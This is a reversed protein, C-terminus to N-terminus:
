FSPSFFDFRLLVLQSQAARQKFPVQSPFTENVSCAVCDILVWFYILKRNFASCVLFVWGTHPHNVLQKAWFVQCRRLTKRDSAM